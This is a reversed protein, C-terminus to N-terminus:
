AAVTTTTTAINQQNNNQNYAQQALELRAEMEMRSAAAAVQRDQSSPNAPALAAQRAQQEKDITAEPDNEVPSSDIGVEGAVAYRNGDPGTTYTYNPGSTILGGGAAIHAQEHARVERDTSKMKQVELQEQGTLEATDASESQASKSGSQVRDLQTSPSSTKEASGTSEGQSKGSPTLGMAQRFLEASNSGEAASISSVAGIAAM